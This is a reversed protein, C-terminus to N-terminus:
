RSRGVRSGVIDTCWEEAARYFAHRQATKMRTHYNVVQLTGVRAALEAASAPVALEGLLRARVTDLAVAAAEAGEIVM